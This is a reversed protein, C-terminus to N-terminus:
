SGNETQEYRIYDRIERRIEELLDGHQFIYWVLWFAVPASNVNAAWLLATNASACSAITIGASTWDKLRTKFIDNVNSLDGYQEAKKPNGLKDLLVQHHETVARLVRDRPERASRFRPLSLTDLGLLLQFVRSDLDWLDRLFDPNKTVFDNGILTKLGIKGILERMLPFLYVETALVDGFNSVLCNSRHESKTLISLCVTCEKIYDLLGNELEDHSQNSSQHLVQEKEDLGRDGLLNLHSQWHV